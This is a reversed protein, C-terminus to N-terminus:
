IKYFETSYHNVTKEFVLLQNLIIRIQNKKFLVDLLCFLHKESSRRVGRKGSGGM